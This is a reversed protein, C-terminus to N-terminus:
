SVNHPYLAYVHIAFVQNYYFFFYFPQDFFTQHKNIEGLFHLKVIRVTKHAFRTKSSQRYTIELGNGSLIREIYVILVDLIPFETM